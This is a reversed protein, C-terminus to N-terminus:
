KLMGRKPRSIMAAGILAGLLLVSSIEFALVHNGMLANGVRAVTPSYAPLKGLMPEKFINRYLKALTLFVLITFFGGIAYTRFNGM